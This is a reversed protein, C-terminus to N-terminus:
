ILLTNESAQAPLYTTLAELVIEFKSPPVFGQITLLHQGNPRMFIITPYVVRGFAEEVEQRVEDNARIPVFERNLKTIVEPDGLVAREFIVCPECSADHLYLMIVRGERKATLLAHANMEYWQIGPKELDKESAAVEVLKSEPEEQIVITPTEPTARTGCCSLFLVFLIKLIKM